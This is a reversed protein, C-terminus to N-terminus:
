RCGSTRGPHQTMAESILDTVKSQESASASAVNQAAASPV